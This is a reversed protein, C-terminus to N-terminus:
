YIYRVDKLNKGVHRSFADEMTNKTHIDAENHKTPVFSTKLEQFYFKEFKHIGNPQSQYDNTLRSYPYNNLDFKIKIQNRIRIKLIL